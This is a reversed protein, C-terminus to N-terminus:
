EQAKKDLDTRVKIRGNDAKYRKYGLDHKLTAAMRAVREIHAQGDLRVADTFKLNHNTRYYREWQERDDKAALALSRIRIQEADRFRMVNLSPKITTAYVKHLKAVDLWRNHDVRHVPSVKVPTVGSYYLLNDSLRMTDTSSADIQERLGLTKSLLAAAYTLRKSCAHRVKTTYYLWTLLFADEESRTYDSTGYDYLESLMLMADCARDAAWQLKALSADHGLHPYSRLSVPRHPDVYAIDKYLFGHSRQMKMRGTATRHVMFDLPVNELDYCTFVVNGAMLPAAWEMLETQKHLLVEPYKTQEETLILPLKPLKLGGEAYSNRLEPHSSLGVSTYTSLRYAPNVAGTMAFMPIRVVSQMYVSSIIDHLREVADLWGILNAVTNEFLAFNGREADHVAKRILDIGKGKDFLAENSEKVFVDLRCMGAARLQKIPAQSM